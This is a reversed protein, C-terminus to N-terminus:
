CSTTNVTCVSEDDYPTDGTATARNSERPLIGFRCLVANSSGTGNKIDFHLRWLKHFADVMLVFGITLAISCVLILILAFIM